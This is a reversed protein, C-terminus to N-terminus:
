LFLVLALFAFFINLLYIMLVTKRHSGLQDLIKHHLHSRDPYLPSLGKLLRIVIVRAMDFIPLALIIIPLFINTSFKDLNELESFNTSVLIGFSALVFGVFYSGGDGMIIKSPYKNFRLFGVCAGCLALFLYTMLIYNEEFAFYAFIISCISATGAALGDLGDIWNFANTVGVLWIISLLISITTPLDINISNISNFPLFSFDLSRIQIGNFYAFCGGAIQMALRPWPSLSFLDDTFGILLFFSSIFTINILRNILYYDYSNFINGNLQGIFIAFGFSILTGIYISLGGITVPRKELIIKRPDPKDLFNYKEGFKIIIPTIKKSILFSLLFFIPSLIFLNVEM